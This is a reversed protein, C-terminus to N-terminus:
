PSGAAAAALPLIAARTRSCCSRSRAGRGPGACPARRRRLGRGPGAGAHGQRGAGPRRAGTTSSRSPCSGPGCRRSSRTRAARCTPRCRWTWGPAGRRPRPPLGRGLRVRGPGPLRVRRAAGDHAAVPEGLRSATSRTTRACSRGRSARTVIREFAPLYIERLTREDVRADVRLRDTEQNNAAYHKLSTGVGRSQIGEVIGVGLEGALLPDESFYEFNRGCLPSRKM